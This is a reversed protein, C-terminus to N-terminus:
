ARRKVKSRAKRRSPRGLQSAAPILALLPAGGVDGLQRRNAWALLRKPGHRPAMGGSFNVTVTVPNSVNGGLASPPL